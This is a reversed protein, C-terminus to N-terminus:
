LRPQSRSVIVHRRCWRSGFPGRPPPSFGRTPQPIGAPLFTPDDVTGRVSFPVQMGAAGSAGPVLKRLLRGVSSLAGTSGPTQPGEQDLGGMGQGLRVVPRETLEVSAFRRLDPGPSGDDREGAFEEDYRPAHEQRALDVSRYSRDGHRAFV